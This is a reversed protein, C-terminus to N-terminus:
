RLGVRDAFASMQDKVTALDGERTSIVMRVAGRDVAQAVQDPGVLDLLGGLSFSSPTPIAGPRSRLPGCSSSGSSSPTTTSAWRNSGTGWGGPGVRRPKPTGVSTSPCERPNCPDRGASPGSSGFFRGDFSAEDDHWLARMAAITEDTRAGRTDFDVGVAELGVCGVWASASGCAGARCFTMTALRKALQVPHHEPLVVIGTALVLRDTVGALYALLDLPDPIPCEDPLPMRGSEAYPYRRGRLRRHGGRARRHLAVSASRRPTARFGVMWAPDAAVGSRYPPLIGFHMIPRRAHSADVPPKQGTITTFVIRAMSRQLDDTRIGWFEFGYRHASVHVLM